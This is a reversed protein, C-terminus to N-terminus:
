GLAKLREKGPIIRNAIKRFRKPYITVQQVNFSDAASFLFSMRNEGIKVDEAVIAKRFRSGSVSFDRENIKIVLSPVEESLIFEVIFAEKKLVQFSIESHSALPSRYFKKSRDLRPASWQGSLLYDQVVHNMRLNLVGDITMPSIGSIEM